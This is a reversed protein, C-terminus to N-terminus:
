SNRSAEDFALPKGRPSLKTENVLVGGRSAWL